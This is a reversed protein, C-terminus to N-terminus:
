PAAVKDPVRLEQEETIGQFMHLGELVHHDVADRVGRLDHASCLELIARHQALSEAAGGKYGAFVRVYRESADRLAETMEYARSYGAARYLLFHFERDSQTFRDPDGSRIAADQRDLAEGMEHLLEPTIRAAGAEALMAELARRSQYLDEVEDLSLPAVIASHHPEAEVLREAALRMLAQRLPTRSIHLHRALWAQDLREGPKLRGTIIWRRLQEYAIDVKTLYDASAEPAGEPSPGMIKSGFNLGQGVEVHKSRAASEISVPTTHLARCGGFEPAKLAPKSRREGPTTGPRHAAM